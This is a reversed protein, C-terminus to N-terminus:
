VMAVYASTAADIGARTRNRKKKKKKKGRGYWRL